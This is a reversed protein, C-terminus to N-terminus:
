KGQTIKIGFVYGREGGSFWKQYEDYNKFEASEQLSKFGEDGSSKIIRDSM